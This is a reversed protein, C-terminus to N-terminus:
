QALVKLDRLPVLVSVQNRQSMSELLPEPTEGCFNYSIDVIMLAPRAGFGVPAAYGSSSMAQRDQETWHREWIRETM